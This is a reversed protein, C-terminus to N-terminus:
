KCVGYDNLIADVPSLSVQAVIAKQLYSRGHENFKHTKVFSQTHAFMM